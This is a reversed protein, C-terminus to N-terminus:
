HFLLTFCPHTRAGVGDTIKKTSRFQVNLSPSPPIYRWVLDSLFSKLKGCSLTFVLTLFTGMLSSRNALSAARIAWLLSRSCSSMSTRLLKEKQKW